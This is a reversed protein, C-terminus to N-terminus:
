KAVKCGYYMAKWFKREKPTLDYRYTQLTVIKDIKNKAIADFASVAQFFIEWNSQFINYAVSGAPSGAAETLNTAAKLIPKAGLATLEAPIAKGPSLVLGAFILGLNGITLAIWSKTSLTRVENILDIASQSSESFELKVITPCVNQNRAAM